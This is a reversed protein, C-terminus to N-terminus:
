KRKKNTHNKSSEWEKLMREKYSKEENEKNIFLKNHEELLLKMIATGRRFSSYLNNNLVYELLEHFYIYKDVSYIFEFIKTIDEAEHDKKCYKTVLENVNSKIQDKEYRTKTPQDLHLLYRFMYRISKIKEIRNSEINLEKSVSDLTRANELIIIVHTHNKKRLIEGTETNTEYDSDHEIYAYKFNMKIYELINSDKENEEPYLTLTWNEGRLLSAQNEKM